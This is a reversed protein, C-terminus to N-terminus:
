IGRAFEYSRQILRFVIDLEERSRPAYIMVLTEPMIGLRTVPHPEAWGAGIAQERLDRPLTVHIASEPLPQLLCFEHADIFAGPPGGAWADPLYFAVTKAPAMRSEQTKVYPLRLSRRLLEEGIEPPSWQDLQVHPLGRRTRPPEGQRVPPAIRLDAVVEFQIEQAIM